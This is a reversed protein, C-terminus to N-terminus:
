RSVGGIPRDQIMQINRCTQEVSEVHVVPFVVPLTAKGGFKEKWWKVDCKGM